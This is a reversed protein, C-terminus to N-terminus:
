LDSWYKDLALNNLVGGGFFLLVEAHSRGRQCKGKVNAESGAGTNEKLVKGFGGVLIKEIGVVARLGFLKCLFM